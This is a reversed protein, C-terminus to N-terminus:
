NESVIGPSEESPRVQKCPIISKRANRKPIDRIGRSINAIQNRVFKNVLDSLTVVLRHHAPVWPPLALSASGLGVSSGGLMMEHDPVPRMVLVGIFPTLLVVSYVRKM